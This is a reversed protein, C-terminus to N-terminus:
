GSVIDGELAGLAKLLDAQDAEAVGNAALAKQLDDVLAAFDDKTVGMGTHAERMTKGTYKCPGGSAECIQDSLMQRLHPVDTAIFYQNIRADAQVNALFDDVVQKIADIRGLRDYLAPDRAPTTPTATQGGGCAGSALALAAVLSAIMGRRM